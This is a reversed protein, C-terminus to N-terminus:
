DSQDTNNLSKTVLRKRNSRLQRPNVTSSPSVASSSTVAGPLVEQMSTDVVPTSSAEAPAASATGPSDTRARQERIRFQSEGTWPTEGWVTVRHEPASLVQHVVCEKTDENITKRNNELSLGRLEPDNPDPMFTETRPIRHVRCLLGGRRIWYDECSATQNNLAAVPTPTGTLDTFQHGFPNKEGEQLLASLGLLERGETQAMVREEPSAHRLHEPAVKFINKRHYILFNRGIKGMIIAVGFWRGGVLRIGKEYKQTRWYAVYDGPLFDREARPRANLATRLAQDDQAMVLATRAQTRIAQARAAMEDHLPTTGAVPCPWEQILDSPVRPNRGFVLQCPSLGKQNLLENKANLTQVICQEYEAKNKPQAQDLVKQLIVEFLHGHKEVKGLQSHAEAASTIMRTGDQELQQFVAEATNTKAPDTIVEVPIGAWRQWTEKFLRRLLENTEKEYFPVMVQFSTAFDIINLCKIQQNVQWGPLLKVDWGVRHNFDLPKDPSVPLAPTPKQRNICIDCAGEVHEAAQLAEPSGGANKLVRVLTRTSPHGLNNHLKKVLTKVKEPDQVQAAACVEHNQEDTLELGESSLSEQLCAFLCLNWHPRVCSMWTAVFENTYAACHNSRCMGTHTHGAIIQHTKHHEPGPCQLALSAMDPHSVALGTTKLIPQGNDPDKLEYACMNARHVVLQNSKLLKAMPPYKWLDSAWPHEVLVRGGRKIQRKIQQICFDAQRQAIRENQLQELLPLRTKNLRYWGGWHKCEPCCVLLEPKEDELQQDVQKQVSTKLLDWGQKIDYSLGKEGRKAAYDSFRPPSFLEAVVCTSETKNWARHQALLCRQERTTCLRTPGTQWQEPSSPSTQEQEVVLAEDSDMLNLIFQGAENLQLPHPEGGQMAITGESFDLVARLSKLTSRSLLLPASGRIVAADIRGRRGHIIVPMSVVRESLEEQGNGFRFLNQESRSTPSQMHREHYLRLFAGLTEQGILTRSCGSDIIGYGPSSVLLVEHTVVAAGNVKEKDAKVSTSAAQPCNRAWHGIQNCRRCRSRKQLDTVERSFQKKLTNAQQFKRTKQLKSIESRREKWTAALVEAIEDEEYIDSSATTSDQVGHEALFAELEDFVVSDPGEPEPAPGTEPPIPEAEEHHVIYAGRTHRKSVRFDPFCSRMAAVVTELKLDGQTKATAIARQDSSLGSSNLCVWGRAESPFDVAVKRRCKSFAEQVRSCWAAISEGEVAQLEFVEKLCEALHDHALKDPFREDLAAWIHKDGNEERMKDLTLHEVTELALGDLLCFIFPGRQGPQMDKMSALKALAWLRWRRYEKPDLSEGSFRKMGASGDSSSAM